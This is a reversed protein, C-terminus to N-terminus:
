GRRELERGVARIQAELSIELSSTLELKRDEYVNPPSRREQWAAVARDRAEVLMRMQPRFLVFMASLWRNVPWSPQALDIEFRELMRIVDSAAYWTEGTVWRNVTFLSTPLGHSDMAIAVLHSLLDNPDAPRERDPLPLPRVGEAMGAGRLFTHFHGHEGPLRSEAPHAHYYYQAHSEPDYVDGAPYHTWEYFTGQHRLVEGVVNDGTKALLRHIEVLERGAEAMEALESAALAALDIKAAPQVGAFTRSSPM